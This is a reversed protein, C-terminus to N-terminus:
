PLVGQVNIVVTIVNATPARTSRLLSPFLNSQRQRAPLRSRWIDRCRGRLKPVKLSQGRGPRYSHSYNAKARPHQKHDVHKELLGFSSPTEFIVIGHTLLTAQEARGDGCPYRQYRWTIGAVCFTTVFLWRSSDRAM